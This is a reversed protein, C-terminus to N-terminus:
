RVLRTQNKLGRSRAHALPNGSQDDDWRERESSGAKNLARALTRPMNMGLRQQKEARSYISNRANHENSAVNIEM